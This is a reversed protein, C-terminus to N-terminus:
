DIPLVAVGGHRWRMSLQRNEVDVDIASFCERLAANTREIDTKDVAYWQLAERMSQARDKIRRANGYQAQLQLAELEIQKLECEKEAIRIREAIVRTPTDDLLMTLDDIKARYGRLAEEATKIKIQLTSDVVPIQAILTEVNSILANEVKNIRISRYPCGASYQAKSCMLLSRDSDGDIRQKRMMLSNCQPCRALGAFVNQLKLKKGVRPERDKAKIKLQARAFVQRKIAIPYYNAIPEGHPRRKRTRQSTDERHPQFEGIVARNRLLKSVFSANWFQASRFVPVRKKNLHMAIANCGEGALYLTFITELTRVHEPILQFKDNKDTRVWSPTVKTLKKGTVIAERKRRWADAIRKSKTASEEHSRSMLLIAYILAIPDARLIAVNYQKNDLLTVVTIGANILNQLTLQADYAAERSLRDFAEILLYSGRPVQGIHVAKLFSGLAGVDSNKGRFASVGLDHLSLDTDLVVDNQKCWNAAAETQRELSKGKMQEPTSFRIYSYARPKM